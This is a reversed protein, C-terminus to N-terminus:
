PSASTRHAPESRNARWIAWATHGLFLLAVIANILGGWQRGLSWGTLGGVVRLLLSLHLLALPGYFTPRFTMPLGSLAPIIIPAHGLIMSAVFGLFVAHLMADYRPGAPIGGFFLAMLGGAALWIYGLLLCVAIYRTLGSRRVTRRAIDYCLLWFSLGIMGMGFLRMGLDHTATAVVLSGVFLATAALFTLRVPTSLRLLRALELREGAITLVLFAMWWLSVRYLPWGVLWLANGVLWTLAGAGMIAHFLTPQRGLLLCFIATLGLSSLLMMSAAWSDTLGFILALAGLGSFLPALYMWRRGLAVARELSIVTGLFGGVMLPGHALVLAPQLLPLRWGLRVLGTWLAVLLALLAVAIYSLGARSRSAQMM